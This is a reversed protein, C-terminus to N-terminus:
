KLLMMKKMDTFEATQLRYFYMGSPLGTANFNVTYRGADQTGHVLSVVERGLLDFVVLSVDASGALDYTIETTPNFPNPFNQHLAFQEVTTNVPEVHGEVEGVPMRNGNMDITVLRYRYDQGEVVDRDTFAYHRQSSSSGAGAVLEGARMWSSGNWRQVEFADNRNESATTWSLLMHGNVSTATFSVLEISLQLDAIIYDETEGLAEDVYTQATLCDLLDGERTPTEGGCSLLRFRLHGDYRGLDLVGPDLFCVETTFSTNPGPAYYLNGPIICESIFVPDDGGQPDFSDNFDCDLNGDKWAWLYLPTGEQYAPGTTITVEVCALEGPMWSGDPHDTPIFYVGDDCGDADVTNPFQEHTICEGLWAVQEDPAYVANAPGGSEPTYTPYCPQEEDNLSPLDGLDFGEPGPPILRCSMYVILKSSRVETAWACQDSLGDIDLWVPLEGDALMYTPIWLKTESISLNNSPEVYPNLIGAPEQENGDVWVFDWQCRSAGRAPGEQGGCYDNEYACIVVCASDISYDECDVLSQDFFHTWGFDQNYWNYYGFGRWEGDENASSEQCPVGDTEWPGNYNPEGSNEDVTEVYTISLGDYTFGDALEISGCPNNCANIYLQMEGFGEVTLYYTGEQLWACDLDTYSGVLGRPFLQEGDCCGTLLYMWAGNGDWDVSITYLATEEVILQFTRDPTARRGCESEDESSIYFNHLLEEMGSDLSFEEDSYCEDLSRPHGRDDAWALSAVAMACLIFMSKWHKM